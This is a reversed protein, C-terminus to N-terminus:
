AGYSGGQSGALQAQLKKLYSIAVEVKVARCVERNDDAGNEPQLVREHKPVVMWLEELARNLRARSRMASDNHMQRRLKVASHGTPRKNSPFQAASQAKSPRGPGRRRVPPSPPPTLEKNIRSVGESFSFKSQPLLPSDNNESIKSPTQRGQPYLTITDCNAVFSPFKFQDHPYAFIQTGVSVNENVFSVENPSPSVSRSRSDGSKSIPSSFASPEEKIPPPCDAVTRPDVFKPVAGHSSTTIDFPIVAGKIILGVISCIHM